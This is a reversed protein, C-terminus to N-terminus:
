RKKDNKVLFESLERLRDSNILDVKERLLVQWASPMDPSAWFRIKRGQAHAKAVIDRLRERQDNPMTGLGLWQFSELWSSSVLPMLTVPATGDLDTLRGDIFVSRYKEAAVTKIPRDGSLIVTVAGPFLTPDRWQTFLGLYTEMERKLESYVAEGDRKIDVLLTFETGKEQIFGGNKKAREALPKLYLEDLTKSADLSKEEHAVLLKGGVLFVDAEVSCFGQDLADLLPRKHLYDNHAHANAHVSVLASCILLSVVM